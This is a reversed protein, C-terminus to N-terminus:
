KRKGEFVINSSGDRLLLKTTSVTYASVTEELLKLFAQEQELNNCAMKTSVINTFKISTGKLIYKGSMKNCGANGSFTSDSNFTLYVGTLGEGDIRAQRKMVDLNWSGALLHAYNKQRAEFDTEYYEISDKVMSTDSTKVVTKKQATCSAFLLIGAMLLLSTKM